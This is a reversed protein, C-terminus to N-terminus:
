TGIAGGQLDPVDEASLRNELVNGAEAPRRREVFHRFLPPAQVWPPIDSYSFALRKVVLRERFPESGQSLLEAAKHSVGAKELVFDCRTHRGQKFSPVR